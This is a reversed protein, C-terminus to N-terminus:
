LDALAAHTFDIARTVLLQIAIDRDFYQRRSKRLVGIAQPPKFLLRLGGARQIMRVDKRNVVHAGM